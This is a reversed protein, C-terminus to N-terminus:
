RSSGRRIEDIRRRRIELSEEKSTSPNRLKLEDLLYREDHINPTLFIEATQKELSYKFNIENDENSIVLLNNDTWSINKVISLFDDKQQTVKTLEGKQIQGGTDKVELFITSYDKDVRVSVSASHKKDPSPKPALLPYENIFNSAIVKSYAETFVEVPWGFQKSAETLTKFMFDLLIKYKDIQSEEKNFSTWEFYKYILCVKTLSNASSTGEKQSSDIIFITIKRLNKPHWDSLFRTFLRSVFVMEKSYREVLEKTKISPESPEGSNESNIGFEVFIFSM